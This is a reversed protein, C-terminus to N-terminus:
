NSKYVGKRRHFSFNFLNRMKFNDFTKFACPGFKVLNEQFLKIFIHILHYHHNRSIHEQLSYSSNTIEWNAGKFIFSLLVFNIFFFIGNLQSFLLSEM